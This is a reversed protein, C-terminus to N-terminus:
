LELEDVIRGVDSRISELLTELQDLQVMIRPKPSPGSGSSKPTDAMPSATRIPMLRVGLVDVIYARLDRARKAINDIRAPVTERVVQEAKALGDM